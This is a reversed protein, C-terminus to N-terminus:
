ALSEVVFQIHAEIFEPELPQRRIMFRYILGGYIEDILTETDIKCHIEGRKRGREILERAITRRSDVYKAFAEASDTDAQAEFALGRLVKGDTSNMLRDALKYFLVRLDGEFSGTDEPLPVMKSSHQVYADSVLAAKSKWRRYVTPKGVGAKHAIAEITLYKYCTTELLSLAAELIANNAAESRPRGRTLTADMPTDLM